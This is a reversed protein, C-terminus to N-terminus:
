KTSPPARRMPSPPSNKRGARTSEPSCIGRRGPKLETGHIRGAEAPDASLTVVAPEGRLIRAATFVGRRCDGSLLFVCLTTLLLFLLVTQFLRRKSRKNKRAPTQM